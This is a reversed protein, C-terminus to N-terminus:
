HGGGRLERVRAEADRAGAAYALNFAVQDEARGIHESFQKGIDNDWAEEANAARTADQSRREIVEQIVVALEADEWDRLIEVLQEDSLRRTESM